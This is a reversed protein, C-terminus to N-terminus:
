YYTSKVPAKNDYLEVNTIVSDKGMYFVLNKIHDPRHMNDHTDIIEYYFHTSDKFQPYRLLHVIQKYKVGKLKYNKLLDNVIGDRVQFTLGEDSSMDWKERTFNQERHCGSFAVITVAVLSISLVYKLM